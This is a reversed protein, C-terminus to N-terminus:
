RSAPTAGTPSSSVAARWRRYWRAFGWWGAMTNQQMAAFVRRQYDLSHEPTLRYTRAARGHLGSLVLWQRSAYVLTHVAEDHGAPNVLKVHILDEVGALRRVWNSAMVPNELTVRTLPTFLVAAIRWSEDPSIRGDHTHAALREINELRLPVTFDATPDAGARLTVAPGEHTATFAEGTEAVTFAMTHFLGRFYDVIEPTQTIGRWVDIAAIPPHDAM